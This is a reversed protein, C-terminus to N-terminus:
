RKRAAIGLRENWGSMGDSLSQTLQTMSAMQDNRAATLDGHFSQWTQAIVETSREQQDILAAQSEASEARAITASSSEYAAVFESRAASLQAAHDTLASTLGSQFAQDLMEQQRAMTATWRDRLSELSSQWLDMQWTILGETRKILQEAAQAEASALPGAPADATPFLGVLKRFCYDKLTM